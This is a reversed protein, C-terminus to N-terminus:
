NYYFVCLILNIMYTLIKLLNVLKRFQSRKTPPTMDQKKYGVHRVLYSPHSLSETFVQQIFSVFGMECTYASLHISCLLLYETGKKMRLFQEKVM